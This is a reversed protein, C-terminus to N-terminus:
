VKKIKAHFLLILLIGAAIYVDALNFSPWKWISVFDIVFGRFMRDILNGIGGAFILYISVRSIKHKMNLESDGMILLFALLAFTLVILFGQHIPIGFAIGINETYGLFFNDPRYLNVLYKTIQDALILVLALIKM